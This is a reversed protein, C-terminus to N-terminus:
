IKELFPPKFRTQRQVLYVGTFAVVMALTQIFTIKEGLLFFAFIASFFMQLKTVMNVELATLVALSKNFLLYGIICNFTVMWILILVSKLTFSPLGEFILALTLLLGGGIVFPLSTQVLFPVDGSRAVFRGLITYFAFGLLSILLFWYGPNDFSLTQSPFYMILGIISLAVGSIKMVNPIENLFFVGLLLVLPATLSTVFSVTTSPLYILAFGSSGNAITFSLIGLLALQWYNKRYDNLHINKYKVFPLLILGALTYRIGALTMPGLDAQGIRILVYSTGWLITTIFIQLFATNRKNLLPL